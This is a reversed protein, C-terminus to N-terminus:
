PWPRALRLGLVLGRYGPGFWRRYSSRCIWADLGWCGGRIVRLVSGAVSVPDPERAEPNGYFNEDYVDEVWEFVNGQMDHLGFNNPAKGGVPYAGHPLGGSNEDYWGMDDLKGTGAIPTTITARCAYEWQAESPLLLGARAEFAQIDDWSVQEVPRRDVGAFASPDTRM